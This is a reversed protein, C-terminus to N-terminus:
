YITRKNEPLGWVRLQNMEGSAHELVENYLATRLYSKRHRIRESIEDFKCIVEKVHNVTLERYVESVVGCPLKTGDIQVDCEEPLISMEAIIRHIEGVLARDCEDFCDIPIEKRLEELRARYCGVRGPKAASESEQSPHTCYNGTKRNEMNYKKEKEEFTTSSISYLVLGFERARM